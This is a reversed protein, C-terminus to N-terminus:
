TYCCCRPFWIVVKGKGTREFVATISGDCLEAGKLAQRESEISNADESKDVIERGWCNIAHVHLTKTLAKDKLDLFQRVVRPNKGKGKCTKANCTFEHCKCGEIYKIKIAPHFFAYVKSQWDKQM